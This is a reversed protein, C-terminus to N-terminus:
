VAKGAPARAKIESTFDLHVTRRTDCRSVSSIGSPILSSSKGDGHVGDLRERLM